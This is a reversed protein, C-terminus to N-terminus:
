YTPLKTIKVNNNPAFGIIRINEDLEVRCRCTYGEPAAHVASDTPYRLIVFPHRILAQFRTSRVTTGLVHGVLLVTVRVHAQKRGLHGGAGTVLVHM